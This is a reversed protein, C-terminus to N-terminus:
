GNYKQALKKFGEPYRKSLKEFNYTMVESLDIYNANLVYNLWMQIHLTCETVLSSDFVKGHFIYKKTHELIHGVEQLTVYFKEDDDLTEVSFPYFNPFIFADNICSATFNSVSKNISLTHAEYDNQYVKHLLVTSYYLLDGAEDVQKVRDTDLLTQHFELLEGALGLILNILESDFDGQDNWTILCGEVYKEFQTINM